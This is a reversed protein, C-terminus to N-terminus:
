GKNQPRGLLSAMEQELSDYFNAPQAPKVEARPAPKPEPVPPTANAAPTVAAVPAPARVPEAMRGAPVPKHATPAVAPESVPAPEAALAETKLAEAMPRRLAAELRQAMDALNQDNSDLSHIEVTAVTQPSPVRVPEPPTPAVTPAPRAPERVAERATERVPHQRASLEEALGALTEAGRQESMRPEAIRPEVHRPEVHRPEVPRAEARRPELPRAEPRAEPRPEPRAEFPRPEARPEISREIPRPERAESVAARPPRAPAPEPEPVTWAAPEEILPARTASRPMPVPAVPAPEPQLPWMSGEPLPVARPLAPEATGRGAPTDRPADRASVARVINPEVVVDTPGGIMLLHEVNDRRILVLRRRSDVATADIVALRPQRGRLASSGLRDGGFRRVAWATGGILGLVVLFAIFFRVALPVDAGFLTEFM